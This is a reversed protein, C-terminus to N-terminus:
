PRWEVKIKCPDEWVHGDDGIQVVAAMLSWSTISQWQALLGSGTDTTVDVLDVAVFLEDVSSLRTELDMARSARLDLTGSARVEQGEEAAELVTGVRIFGDYRAQFSARVLVPVPLRKFAELNAGMPAIMRGDTTPVGVRALVGSWSAQLTM